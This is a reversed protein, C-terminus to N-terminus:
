SRKQASIKGIDIIAATATFATQASKATAAAPPAVLAKFGALAIGGRATVVAIGTIGRGPEPRSRRGIFARGAGMPRSSTEPKKLDM